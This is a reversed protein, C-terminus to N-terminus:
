GTFPEGGSLTIGRQLKLKNMENIIYSTNVIIGGDLHHTQPNHCRYCNHICGQTWIVM